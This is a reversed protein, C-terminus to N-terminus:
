LLDKSTNVRLDFDACEGDGGGPPEGEVDTTCGSAPGAAEDARVTCLGEGKDREWFMTTADGIDVDRFDGDLGGTLDGTNAADDGVDGKIDGEDTPRVELANEGGDDDDGSGM